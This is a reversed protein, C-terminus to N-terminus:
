DHTHTRENLSLQAEGTGVWGGGSKKPKEIPAERADLELVLTCILLPLYLFFM